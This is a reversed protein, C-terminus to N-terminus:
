REERASSPWAIGSSVREASAKTWIWAGAAHLVEPAEGRPLYDLRQLLSAKNFVALVACAVEKQDVRLPLETGHNRHVMSVQGAARHM